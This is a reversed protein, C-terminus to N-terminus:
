KVCKESKKKEINTTMRAGILQSNFSAYYISADQNLIHLKCTLYVNM